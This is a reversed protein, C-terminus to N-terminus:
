EFSCSPMSCPLNELNTKLSEKTYRQRPNDYPFRGDTFFVGHYTPDGPIAFEFVIDQVGYATQFQAAIYIELLKKQEEDLDKRDYRGSSLYVQLFGERQCIYGAYYSSGDYNSEALALTPHGYRNKWNLFEFLGPEFTDALGQYNYSQKYANKVGTALIFDSRLVWIRKELLALPQPQAFQNIAQYAPNIGVEHEYNEAQPLISRIQERIQEQLPSYLNNNLISQINRDLTLLTYLRPMGRKLKLFSVNHANHDYYFSPKGQYQKYFQMALLTEIVGQQEKPLSINERSLVIDLRNKQPFIIGAYFVNTNSSLQSPTATPAGTIINFDERLVFATPKLLKEETLDHLPLTPPKMKHSAPLPKYSAANFILYSRLLFAAEMHGIHLLKTPM